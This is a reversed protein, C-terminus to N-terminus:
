LRYVYNDLRSGRQADLSDVIRSVAFFVSIVINRETKKSTWKINKEGNKVYRYTAEM